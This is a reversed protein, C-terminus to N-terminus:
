SCLFVTFLTLSLHYSLHLVKNFEQQFATQTFPGYLTMAGEYNQQQYEEPTTCYGCSTNCHSLVVVFRVIPSLEKLLMEELRSGTMTTPEGPFGVFFLQGLQILQLPLLTPLMPKKKFVGHHAAFLIAKPAPGKEIEKSVKGFILPLGQPIVPTGALFYFFSHDFPLIYPFSLHVSISKEGKKQGSHFLRNHNPGDVAGASPQGLCARFTRFRDVSVHHFTPPLVDLSLRSSLPRDTPARTQLALM